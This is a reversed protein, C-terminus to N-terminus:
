DNRRRTDVTRTQYVSDDVDARNSYFVLGILTALAMTVVVGLLMVITEGVELGGEFGGALWVVFLMAAVFGANLAAFYSFWRM